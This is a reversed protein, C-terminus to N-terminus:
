RCLFLTVIVKVKIQCFRILEDIFIDLHYIVKIVLFERLANWLYCECSYSLHCQTVAIVPVFLLIYRLVCYSHLTYFFILDLVIGKM